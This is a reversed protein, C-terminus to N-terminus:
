NAAAASQQAEGDKKMFREMYLAGFDVPTMLLPPYGGNQVLDALIQRVFPFALKPVEILLVPHHQNEPLDTLSVAIGYDVHALFLPQGERTANVRLQVTVEYLSKIKDDAVPHAELNIGVDMQPGSQGPRLSAPTGPNEFSVDKLYQAHVVIPMNQARVQQDSM